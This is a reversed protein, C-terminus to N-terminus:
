ILSPQILVLHLWSKRPPGTTLFRGQLASSVPEIGPWPVLIGCAWTGCSSLWCVVVLSDTHWLPLDQIICCLDGHMGCSLGSVASCINFSFFLLLHLRHSPPPAVERHSGNLPWTLRTTLSHLTPSPGSVQAGTRFKNKWTILNFCISGSPQSKECAMRNDWWWGDSSLWM